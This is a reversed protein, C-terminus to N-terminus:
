TRKNSVFKGRSKLQKLLNWFNNPDTAQLTDLKKILQKHYRRKLKRCLSKYVKRLKKFKIRLFHNNLNKNLFKSIIKLGKKNTMVLKALGNKIELKGIKSRAKRINEQKEKVKGATNAFTDEVNSLVNETEVNINEIKNAQLENFNKWKISRM